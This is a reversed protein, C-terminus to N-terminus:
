AINLGPYDQIEDIEVITIDIPMESPLTSFAENQSVIADQLKFRNIQHSLADSTDVLIKNQHQMDHSIQNISDIGITIDNLALTNKEVDVTIHTITENVQRMGVEVDSFNDRIDHIMGGLYKANDNYDRLVEAMSSVLEKTQNESFHAYATSEEQLANVASLVTGSIAQIQMVADQSHQALIKIEEAVVSFGRGHVGARAAEISANLALLNTQKTITFISDSLQAIGEVSKSRELADNLRRQIKQANQQSEHYTERTKKELVKVNEQISQIIDNSQEVQEHTNEIHAYIEESVSSMEQLSANSQDMNENLQRTAGHINEIHNTIVQQDKELDQSFSRIDNSANKISLMIQQINEIFQNFTSSIVGLEDKSKVKLRHTLDGESSNLTTLESQLSGFAYKLRLLLRTSMLLSFILAAIIGFVAIYLSQKFHNESDLNAQNVSLSVVDRMSSMDNKIKDYISRSSSMLTTDSINDPQFITASIMKYDEWDTLFNQWNEHSSLVNSKEIKQIYQNIRNMTASSFDQVSLKELPDSLLNYSFEQIRYESINSVLQNMDNLDQYLKATATQNKYVENLGYLSISSTILLSFILVTVLSLIKKRINM